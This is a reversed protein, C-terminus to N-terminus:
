CYYLLWYVEHKQTRLQITRLLQRACLGHHVFRFVNVPQKAEHVLPGTQTLKGLLPSQIVQAKVLGEATELWRAKEGGLGGILKSARDLKISCLEIDNELQEKKRTNAKLEAEMASLKDM